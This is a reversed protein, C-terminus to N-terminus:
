RMIKILHTLRYDLEKKGVMYDIYNMDLKTWDLRFLM